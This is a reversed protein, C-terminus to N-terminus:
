FGFLIVGVCVGILLCGVGLVFCCVVCLLVLLDVTFVLTIVGVIFFYEILGGIWLLLGVLWRVCM